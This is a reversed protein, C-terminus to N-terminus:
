SICTKIQNEMQQCQVKKLGEVKTLSYGGLSFCCGHVSLLHLLHALELDCDPLLLVELSLATLEHQLALVDHLPAEVLDAGDLNLVSRLDKLGCKQHEEPDGAAEKNEEQDRWGDILEAKEMMSIM